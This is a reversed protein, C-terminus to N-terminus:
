ARSVWAPRDVTTEGVGSLRFELRFAFPEGDTTGSIRYTFLRVRGDRDLLLRSSFSDVTTNGVLAEPKVSERTATLEVVRVGDHTTVATPVHDASEIFDDIVATGTYPSPDHLTTNRYTVSGNPEEVRTYEQSGNTYDTTTTEDVTLRLVSEDGARRAEVRVDTDNVHQEIDIAYAGNQLAREHARSVQTENVQTGNVGPFGSASIPTPTGTSTPTPTPTPTATETTTPSETGGGVTGGCGAAVVLVALLAASIARRM